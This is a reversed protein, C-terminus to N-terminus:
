RTSLECCCAVGAATEFGVLLGPIRTDGCQTNKARTLEVLLIGITNHRPNFLGYEVEHAPRLINRVIIYTKFGQVEQCEYLGCISVSYLSMTIEFCDRGIDRRPNAVKGSAVITRKFLSISSPKRLTTNLVEISNELTIACCLRVKSTLTCLIISPSNLPLAQVLQLRTSPIYSVDTGLPHQQPPPRNIVFM